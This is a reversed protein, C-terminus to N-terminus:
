EEKKNGSVVEAPKQIFEVIEGTQANIDYSKNPDLGKVVCLEKFFIMMERQAMQKLVDAGSLANRRALFQELEQTELKM